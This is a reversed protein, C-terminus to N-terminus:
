PKLVARYFRRPASISNTDFFLYPSVPLVINALEQWDNTADMSGRFEIRYSAGVEGSISIGAYSALSLTPQSPGSPQALLQVDDLDTEDFNNYSYEGRIWLRTVAKLVKNFDDQRALKNSTVNFWGVNENLPVDYSTWTRPPV